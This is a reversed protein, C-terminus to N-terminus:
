FESDLDMQRDPTYGNQDVILIENRAASNILTKAELEFPLDRQYSKNCNKQFLECNTQPFLM